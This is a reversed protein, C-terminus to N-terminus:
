STRAVKYDDYEVADPVAGLNSDKCLELHCVYGSNSNIKHNIKTVLYNGSKYYDPKINDSGGVRAQLDPFDIGLKMGVALESDGYVSMKIKNNNLLSVQMAKQLMWKDVLEGQFNPIYKGFQSGSILDKGLRNKANNFPLFQNLKESKNNVANFSIVNATGHTMDLSIIKSSYGGTSITSLVDFSQNIQINNINYKNAEKDGGLAAVNQPTMTYTTYGKADFLSRLCKFNFGYQTEFFFFASSLKPDISFSSIWNIAEFPRLAPIIIKQTKVTDDYIFRSPNVQLGNFLIDKIIDINKQGNYSKSIKLSQNLIFEESTFYITYRVSTATNFEVDSIKYIRFYKEFAKKEPTKFNLYLYENGCFALMTLLNDTDKVTIEGSMCSHTIDQFVNINEIVYKIDKTVGISSIITASTFEYQNANIASGAM